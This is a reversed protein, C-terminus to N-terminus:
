EDEGKPKAPAIFIIDSIDRGGKVPSSYVEDEWTMVASEGGDLNYARQCGMEEFLRALEVLTMGKSHAQRGDVAVFCYHGPEYYGIAVRPNPGAIGPDYETIAKGNQDLLQPGFDWAQWAGGAIAKEVDFDAFSYTEMTGNYYLVCVQHAKSKRFVEGNRIVIGRQRIGFYDGSVALIADNKRALNLTSDAVVTSFTDGALATRIATVYRVYVDAVYYTVGDESHTTVTLNVESDMYFGDGTVVSGDTTFKDSFRDGYDEVKTEETVGYLNGISRPLVHHFLAFVLLGIGLLLFDLSFLLCLRKKPNM